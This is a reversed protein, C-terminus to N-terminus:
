QKYEKILTAEKLFKKMQVTGRILYQYPNDCNAPLENMLTVSEGRGVKHTMFVQVSRGDKLKYLCCCEKVQIRAIM